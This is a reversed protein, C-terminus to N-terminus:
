KNIKDYISKISDSVVYVKGSVMRIASVQEGQSWVSEIQSPNILIIEKDKYMLSTVQIIKKMNKRVKKCKNNNVNYCQKRKNDVNKVGKFCFLFDFLDIRLSKYSLDRSSYTLLM